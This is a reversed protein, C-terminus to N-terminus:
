TITYIYEVTCAVLVTHSARKWKVYMRNTHAYYRSPKSEISFAFFCHTPDSHIISVSQSHRPCLFSRWGTWKYWSFMIHHSSSSSVAVVIFAAYTCIGICLSCALACILKWTHTQQISVADCKTKHHSFPAPYNHTHTPQHSRVLSEHFM